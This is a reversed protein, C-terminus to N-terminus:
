EGRQRSWEAGLTLPEEEGAEMQKQELALREDFSEWFFRYFLM